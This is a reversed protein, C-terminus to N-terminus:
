AEDQQDRERGPAAVGRRRAREVDALRGIVQRVERLRRATGVVFNRGVRDTHEIRPCHLRVFLCIMAGNEMKMAVQVDM